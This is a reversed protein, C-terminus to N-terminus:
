NSIYIRLIEDYKRIIFLDFFIHRFIMYILITLELLFLVGKIRISFDCWFKLIHHLFLFFFIYITSYIKLFNIYMIYLFFYQFYKM